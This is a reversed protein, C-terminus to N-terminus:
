FVSGYETALLLYRFKLFLAVFELLRILYYFSVLRNILNIVYREPSIVWLGEKMLSELNKWKLRHILVNGWLDVQTNINLCVVYFETLTLIGDDKTLLFSWLEEEWARCCIVWLNVSAYLWVTYLARIDNCKNQIWILCTWKSVMSMNGNCDYIM